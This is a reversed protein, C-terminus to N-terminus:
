TFKLTDLRKQTVPGIAHFALHRWEDRTVTSFFADVSSPCTFFVTDVQDLSCPPRAPVPTYLVVEILPLAAQALAEPLARRAHSSRPWFLPGPRRPHNLLLNVVGEQTQTTAVALEHGPFLRKATAATSLGVCFIPIPPLTTPHLAEAFFRAGHKSTLILGSADQIKGLLEPAVPLPSLTIFPAHILHLSPDRKLGEPVSPGVVLVSKM